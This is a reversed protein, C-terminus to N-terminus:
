PALKLGAAQLEDVMRDNSWDYVAFFKGQKYNISGFTKIVLARRLSDNKKVGDALLADPAAYKERLFDLYHSARIRRPRLQAALYVSALEPTAFLNYEVINNILEPAPFRHVRQGFYDEYYALAKEVTRLGPVFYFHFPIIRKFFRRCQLWASVSDKGGSFGLLVTDCVSAVYSCLADSDPFHRREKDYSLM